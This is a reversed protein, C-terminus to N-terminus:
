SISDGDKSLGDSIGLPWYRQQAGDMKKSFFILPQVGAAVKHQLVAGMHHDSADVALILEAAPDPHALQAVRVLREKSAVFAATMEETWELQGCKEGRLVNTLPRMLGAAGAMFRRYFNAMGLYTQLEKV